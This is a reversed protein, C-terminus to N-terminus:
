KIVKRMPYFVSLTNSDAAKDLKRTVGFFERNMDILMQEDGYLMQFM